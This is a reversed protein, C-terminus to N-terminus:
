GALGAGVMEILKVPVANEEVFAARQGQQTHFPGSLLKRGLLAADLDSVMFAMHSVLHWPEPGGAEAFEERPDFWTVGYPDPIDAPDDLREMANALPIALHSYAM